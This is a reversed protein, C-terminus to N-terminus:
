SFPCESPSAPVELSVVFPATSIFIARRFNRVVRRWSNVATDISRDNARNRICRKRVRPRTKLPVARRWDVYIGFWCGGGYLSCKCAPSKRNEARSRGSSSFLFPSTAGKKLGTFEIRSRGSSVETTKITRDTIKTRPHPVSNNLTKDNRIFRAKDFKM